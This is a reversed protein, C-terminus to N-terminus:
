SYPLFIIPHLAIRLIAEKSCYISLLWTYIYFRFTLIILGPYRLQLSSIKPDSSPGM